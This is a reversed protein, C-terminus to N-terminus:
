QQAEAYALFEELRKRTGPAITRYGHELRSLMAQSIGIEQAVEDQSLGLFRRTRAYDSVPVPSFISM